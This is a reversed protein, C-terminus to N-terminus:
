SGRLRETGVCWGELDWLILLRPNVTLASSHLYAMCMECFYSNHEVLSVVDLGGAGLFGM